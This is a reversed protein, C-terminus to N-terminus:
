GPCYRIAMSRHNPAKLLSLLAPAKAQLVASLSKYYVELRKGYIQYHEQVQYGRQIYNPAASSSEPQNHLLLGAQVKVALLLLVSACFSTPPNDICRSESARRDQHRM